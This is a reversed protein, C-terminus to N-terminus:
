RRRSFFDDHMRNFSKRTSRAIILQAIFVVAYFLVELVALVISLTTVWAPIVVSNALLVQVIIAALIFM